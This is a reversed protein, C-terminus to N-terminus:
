LFLMHQNAGMAEGEKVTDPLAQKYTTPIFLVSLAAMVCMGGELIHPLDDHVSNQFHFWVYMTHYSLSHHDSKM